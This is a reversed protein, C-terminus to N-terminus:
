DVLLSGDPQVRGSLTTRSQLNMVRIVDGPSGRGLARGEARLTLGNQAYVLTVIQNREIVAPPGVDEPLIPRGPYLVVRTEQGILAALDSFTGAMEQPSLTLDGAALVTQPRLTRAAVVIDALVPAPALLLILVRWM